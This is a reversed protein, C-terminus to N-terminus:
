LVGKRRAIKYAVFGAGGIIGVKIAVDTTDVVVKDVSQLAGSLGFGAVGIGAGAAAILLLIPM